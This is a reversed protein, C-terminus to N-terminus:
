RSVADQDPERKNTHRQAEECSRQGDTEPKQISKSWSLKKLAQLCHSAMQAAQKHSPASWDKSPLSYEAEGHHQAARNPGKTACQPCPHFSLTM